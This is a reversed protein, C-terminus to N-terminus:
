LGEPRGVWDIKCSVPNGLWTKGDVLEVLLKKEAIFSHMSWHKTWPLGEDNWGPLGPLTADMGILTLESPNLKLAQGIARLGTTPVTRKKDAYKKMAATVRRDLGRDLPVIRRKGIVEKILAAARARRAANGYHWTYWVQYPVKPPKVTVPKDKKGPDTHGLLYGACNWCWASIKRGAIAKPHALWWGNMRVVFDHRDILDGHGKPSQGNGVVCLRM